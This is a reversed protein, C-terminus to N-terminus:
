LTIEYNTKIELQITFRINLDTIMGGLVSSFFAWSPAPLRSLAPFFKGLVVSLGDPLPRSLREGLFYFPIRKERNLFQLIDKRYSLHQNKGKLNIKRNHDNWSTLIVLRIRIMLRVILVWIINWNSSCSVFRHLWGDIVEIEFKIMKDKSTMMYVYDTFWKLLNICILSWRKTKNPAEKSHLMVIFSLM